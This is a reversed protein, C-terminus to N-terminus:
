LSNSKQPIKVGKLWSHSKCQQITARKEPDCVLLKKIFDKADESLLIQNSFRYQANIIQSLLTATNAHYFPLSGTLIAFTIVGISWLDVAKGYPSSLNNVVEPAVYHLSGCRSTLQELKFVKSLGFDAIKIKELRPEGKSKQSRKKCLINELKLDRHAIGKEHLYDVAELLQAIIVKAENEKYAGEEDLKEYLTGGRVLDLVISISENTEYVESCSVIGSHKLMKMIQVERELSKTTINKKAIVKIAVKEKTINNKAKFVESFAGKGIKTRFSYKDNINGTSLFEKPLITTSNTTTM